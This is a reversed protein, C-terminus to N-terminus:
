QKGPAINVENKYVAVGDANLGEAVNMSYLGQRFALFTGNVVDVTEVKGDDWTLRVQTINEQQVKGYIESFGPDNARSGSSQGGGLWLPERVANADEPPNKQTCGGGGSGPRWGILYRDVKYTFVCEERGTRDRNGEFTILVVASTDDIRHSQQVVVTAPDVVFGPSGHQFIAAKGAEEPSFIFEGGDCATLLISGLMPLALLLLIRATNFKKSKMMM